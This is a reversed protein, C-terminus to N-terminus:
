AVVGMAALGIEHGHHRLRHYAPSPQVSALADAACRSVDSDLHDWSHGGSYKTAMARLTAALTIRERLEDGPRMAEPRAPQSTLDQKVVPCATQEPPADCGSACSARSEVYRHAAAREQAMKQQANTAARAHVVADALDHLGVRRLFDITNQLPENPNM